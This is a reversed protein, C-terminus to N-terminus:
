QVVPKGLDRAAVRRSGFPGRELQGSGAITQEEIGFGKAASDHGAPAQTRPDVVHHAAQNQLQGMGVPDALYETKTM